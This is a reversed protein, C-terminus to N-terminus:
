CDVDGWGIEVITFPGPAQEGTEGREEWAEFLYPRIGGVSPLLQGLPAKRLRLQSRSTTSRGAAVRPKLM